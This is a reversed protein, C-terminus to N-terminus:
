KGDKTGICFLHKKGRLYIRGPAFAPSAGAAEGLAARGTEKFGDQSAEGSIMVGKTSLLHIRGNFICPSAQFTTKTDHEWLLKGSLADFAYFIGFVLTYVRPGDCLMSCMDPLGSDEQKWAIHSATVDGSGDPKIAAICTQDSGVYVLENVFTPSAAVDGRMCKAQWLNKGTAPDYAIVLPDAATIIQERGQHKILIPSVWSNAVPRPTSWVQKGTAADLALIKSKGSKAEAQDYVVIVRNQWLTLSAAHGYTNEPTGLNLAWLRKGEASFGAVDGNAFCAFVRRGDTAATPAAFGTDEMVEPAEARDGQPTNVPEKWLLAGTTADFCYVERRTATAGTLFIRNGWIVPSNEGPLGIETQWLINNGSAGDWTEPLKPLTTIGSGAPGRFYPWNAAVDGASPFWGPDSAAAPGAAPVAAPTEPSSTLDPQWQRGTNWFLALALGALALTTGTVAKAALAASRQADAPRASINPIPAPPRRLHAALKLAALFVAAGGLLFWAARGALKERRFYEHRLQQDLQRIHQKLPENKPDERLATKLPALERAEVLRLKGAGPGRHLHFTNAILWGGLVLSFVGAILAIRSCSRAWLATSTARADQGGGQIGPLIGPGSQAARADPGSSEPKAVVAEKRRYHWRSAGACCNM